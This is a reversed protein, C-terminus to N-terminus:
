ATEFIQVIADLQEPPATITLVVPDRQVDWGIGACCLREAAAFAEVDAISEPAFSIKVADATRAVGRVFPTLAAPMPADSPRAQIDCAILEILDSAAPTKAM